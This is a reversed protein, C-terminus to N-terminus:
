GYFEVFQGFFVAISLQCPFNELMQFRYFPLVRFHPMQNIISQGKNVLNQDISSLHIEWEQNVMFLDENLRMSWCIAFCIFNHPMGARRIEKAMIKKQNPMSLGKPSEAASPRKFAVTAHNGNPDGSCHNDIMPHHSTTMPMVKKNLNVVLIAMARSKMWITPVNIGNTM